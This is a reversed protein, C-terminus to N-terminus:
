DPSRLIYGDQFCSKYKWIVNLYNAIFDAIQEDSQESVFSRRSRAYSELGLDYRDQFNTDGKKVVVIERVRDEITKM